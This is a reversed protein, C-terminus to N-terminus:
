LLVVARSVLQPTGWLPDGLTSGSGFLHLEATQGYIASCTNVRELTRRVPIVVEDWEQGFLRIVPCAVAGLFSTPHKQLSASQETLLTYESFCQRERPSEFERVSSNFIALVTREIWQAM